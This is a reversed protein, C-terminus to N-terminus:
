PLYTSSHCPLGACTDVVGGYPQLFESIQAQAAPSYRPDEHPDQNTPSPSPAFNALPPAQTHGPGSDWLVIASGGFPYSSIAPVGFLLQADRPRDGILDLAPMHAEAGITRAEVAAAYDSVEFDGYAIQM